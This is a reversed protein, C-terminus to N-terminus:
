PTPNLFTSVDYIMRKTIIIRRWNIILFSNLTNLFGVLKLWCSYFTRVSVPLKWAFIKTRSSRWPLNLPAQPIFFITYSLINVFIKSNVIHLHCNWINLKWIVNKKKWLKWREYINYQQRCCTKSRRNTVYM